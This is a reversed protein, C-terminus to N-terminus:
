KQKATIESKFPSGGGTGEGVGMGEVTLKRTSVQSRATYHLFFLQEENASHCLNAGQTISRFQM